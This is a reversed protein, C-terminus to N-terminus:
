ATRPGARWFSRVKLSLVIREGIGKAPELFDEGTKSQDREKM